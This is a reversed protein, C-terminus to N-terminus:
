FETQRTTKLKEEDWCEFETPSPPPQESWKQVKTRQPNLFPFFFHNYSHVRSMKLSIPKGRGEWLVGGKGLVRQGSKHILVLVCVQM